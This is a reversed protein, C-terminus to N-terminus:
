EVVRFGYRLTDVGDDKSPSIVLVTYAGPSMQDAPFMLRGVVFSDTSQVSAPRSLEHGQSDLVILDFRQGPVADEIIVSLLGDQGRSRVFTENGASRNPALTISQVSGILHGAFYNPIFYAGLSLLIAAAGIVAPRIRLTASSFTWHWVRSIWSGAAAPEGCQAAIAHQLVSDTRITAIHSQLKSVQALCYECDLLHIEFQQTETDDLLGLEYAHLLQGSQM